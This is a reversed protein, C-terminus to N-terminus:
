LECETLIQPRKQVELKEFKGSFFQNVTISLWWCITSTLISYSPMLLWWQMLIMLPLQRTVLVIM